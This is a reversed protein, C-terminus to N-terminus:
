LAISALIYLTWLLTLFNVINRPDALWTHYLKFSSHNIHVKMLLARYPPLWYAESFTTLNLCCLIMFTAFTLIKFHVRFCAPLM